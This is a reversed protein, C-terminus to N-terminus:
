AFRSGHDTIVTTGDLIEILPQHGFKQFSKNIPNAIHERRVFDAAFNNVQNVVSWASFLQHTGLLIVVILYRYWFTRKILHCQRHRYWFWHHWRWHLMCSKDVRIKDTGDVSGALPKTKTTLRYDTLTLLNTAGSWSTNIQFEWVWPSNWPSLLFSQM